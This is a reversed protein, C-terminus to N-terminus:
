SAASTSACSSIVPVALSSKGEHVGRWGNGGEGDGAGVGAATGADLGVELGEGCMAHVTQARDGREGCLVGTPHRSNFYRWWREQAGLDIGTELIEVDARDLDAHEGVGVHDMGHGFREVLVTRRV